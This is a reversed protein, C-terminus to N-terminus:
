WIELGFSISTNASYRFKCKSLFKELIQQKM